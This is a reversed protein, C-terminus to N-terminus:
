QFEIETHLVSFSRQTYYHAKHIFTVKFEVNVNVCKVEISSLTKM